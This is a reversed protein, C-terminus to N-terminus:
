YYCCYTVPDLDAKRSLTKGIWEGASINKMYLTFLEDTHDAYRKILDFVVYSFRQLKKLNGFKFYAIFLGIQSPNFGRRKVVM